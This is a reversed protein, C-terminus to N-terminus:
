WIGSGRNHLGFFHLLNNLLQLLRRFFRRVFGPIDSGGALAPSAQGTFAVSAGSNVKVIGPGYSLQSLAANAICLDPTRDEEAGGNKM